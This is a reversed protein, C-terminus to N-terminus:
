RMRRRNMDWLLYIMLPAGILGTLVGVRIERGPVLARALLDAFILVAAGLGGSLPLLYRHKAATMRRLLHPVVLGVFGIAGSIAVSSAILISSSLLLAMRLRGVDIGLSSAQAEGLTLADLERSFYFTSFFGIILGPLGITVHPWGRGDFGGLLWAFLQKGLEFQEMAYSLVAANISSFLMGLSVGALLLATSDKIQRATFVLLLLVLAAGMFAAGPILWVTWMAGGLVFALIGGTCAGSAIGLIGPDALPNRFMAQLTVGSVALAAGSVAAVMARPLRLELIIKQRWPDSGSLASFLESSTMTTPGVAVSLILACVLLGVIITSVLFLSFGTKNNKDPMM